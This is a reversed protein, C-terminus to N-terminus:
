CPIRGASLRQVAVASSEQQTELWFVYFAYFSCGKQHCSFVSFLVTNQFDRKFHGSSPALFSLDESALCCQLPVASLSCLGPALQSGLSM